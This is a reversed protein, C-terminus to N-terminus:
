PVAVTYARMQVTSTLAHPEDLPGYRKEAWAKARAAAPRFATADLSWQWSAEGRELQGLFALPVRPIRLTVAPLLRVECGHAGFTEDLMGVTWRRAPPQVPLEAKFRAEIDDLVDVRGDGADLIVLGGPRVVRVVEAIAIRWRPVSHLVHIITASGFSDDEFPLRTADAGVLPFPQRGGSKEIAKRMMPPSLDVGILRIGSAALPLATRGTGVGVDICLGRDTLESTLIDLVRDRGEAPLSRTQDYYDAARDFCISAGDDSTVV